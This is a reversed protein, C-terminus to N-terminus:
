TFDILIKASKLINEMQLSFKLGVGAAAAVAGLRQSSGLTDSCGVGNVVVPVCVCVCMSM